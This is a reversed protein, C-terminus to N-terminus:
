LNNIKQSIIDFDVIPFNTETIIREANGLQKAMDFYFNANFKKEFEISEQPIIEILKLNQCFILNSLGAGHMGVVINANYFYEIQKEFTLHELELVIFNYKELFESLEDINQISRRNSGNIFTDNKMLFTEKKLGRKVLINFTDMKNIKFRDLIYNKFNEIHTYNYSVNTVTVGNINFEQCNLLEYQHKDVNILECDFIKNFLNIMTGFQDKDTEVLYFINKPNHEKYIQYFPVCFEVLFHYYNCMEETHLLKIKLSM